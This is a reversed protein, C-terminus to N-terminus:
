ITPKLWAEVSFVSTNLTPNYDFRTPVGGDTSSQDIATYGAAPASDGVIAGPVRHTMGPFHTGYTAAGLSGINTAIEVVPPLFDNLRYYVMPSDSLVQSQYAPPAANSNISLSALLIPLGIRVSVPRSKLKPTTKM